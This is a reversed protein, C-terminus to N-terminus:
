GLLSYDLGSPLASVSRGGLGSAAMGSGLLLSGLMAEEERQRQREDEQRAVEQQNRAEREFARSLLPNQVGLMAPAMQGAMESVDMIRGVAEPDTVKFVKEAIAKSGLRSALSPALGLAATDFAAIAGRDLLSTGPPAAAGAMLGFGVDPAFTMVKGLTTEPMVGKLGRLARGLVQGAMRLGSM